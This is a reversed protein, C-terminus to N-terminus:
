PRCRAYFGRADAPSGPRAPPSRPSISPSPSPRRAPEPTEEVTPPARDDLQASPAGSTRSQHGEPAAGVGEPDSPAAVPAQVAGLTWGGRTLTLGPAIIGWLEDEEDAYILTRQGDLEVAVVDVTRAKDKRTIQATGAGTVAVQAFKGDTIGLVDRPGDGKTRWARVFDRYLHFGLEDVISFSEPPDFTRTFKRDPLRSVTRVKDGKWFAIVDPKAGELGIWKKYKDVVGDPRRKLHTRIVYKSGGNKLEAKSSAFENGSPTRVWKYSLEGIKEGDKTVDLVRRDPDPKEKPPGAAAHAALSLLMTLVTAMPTLRRLM